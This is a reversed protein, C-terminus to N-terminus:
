SSNGPQVPVCWKWRRQGQLPDIVSREADDTVEPALSSKSFFDMTV